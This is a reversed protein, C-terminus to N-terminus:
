AANIVGHKVWWAPHSQAIKEAAHTAHSASEFIGFCTAGSGSMCAFKCHEAAKIVSLVDNIIPLRQAAAQTLDNRNEAIFIAADDATNLTNIEPMEEGFEDASLAKFVEQTSCSQLPNVLICHLAAGCQISTINEGIGQMRVLGGQTIGHYCVPVDAGLSLLMERRDQVSHAINYFQELGYIAAAANGSGGGLGSSLPLHKTLTIKVNLDLGFRKSFLNIAQMVLNTDDSKLGDAFTGVIEFCFADAPAINIEDGIDAFGVLSDLMHYGDDRRGTVHLTLNVKAPSFVTLSSTM